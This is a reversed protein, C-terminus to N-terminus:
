SPRRACWRRGEDAIRDLAAEDDIVVPEVLKVM